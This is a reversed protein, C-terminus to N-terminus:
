TRDQDLFDRRYAILGGDAVGFGFAYVAPLRHRAALTIIPKRHLGAAVSGTVILGGNLEHAFASVAREIESDDRVDVPILEVNFPSAVAQVSAFQGNLLFGSVM